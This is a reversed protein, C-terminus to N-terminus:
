SMILILAFILVVGIILGILNINFIFMAALLGLILLVFAFYLWIPLGNSSDDENGLPPLTVPKSFVPEKPKVSEVPEKAARNKHWAEELAKDYRMKQEASMFYTRIKDLEDKLLQSKNDLSGNRWRDDLEERLLSLAKFCEDASMDKSIHYSLEELHSVPEGTTVDLGKYYDIM